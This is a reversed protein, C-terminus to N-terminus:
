KKNIMNKKNKYPRSKKPFNSLIYIFLLTTRLQKRLKFYLIILPYIM